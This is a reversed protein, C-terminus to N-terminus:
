MDGTRRCSMRTRIPQATRLGNGGLQGYEYFNSVLTHAHEDKIDLIKNGDHSYHRQNGTSRVVADLMGNPTYTYKAWHGADDAAYNM